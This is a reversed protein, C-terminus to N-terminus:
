RNRRQQRKARRLHKKDIRIVGMMPIEDITNADIYDPYPVQKLSPSFPVFTLAITTLQQWSDSTIEVLTDNWFNKGDVYIRIPLDKKPVIFQFYGDLDTKMSQSVSDNIHLQIDHFFIPDLSRKEIVQGRIFVSDALEHTKQLASSTKSSVQASSTTPNILLSSAALVLAPLSLYANTSAPEEFLNRNLQQPSFRGCIESSSLNLLHDTLQKHSFFTFDILEKSCQNCFKGEATNQMDDWSENCPTPLQLTISPKMM